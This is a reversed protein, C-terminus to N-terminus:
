NREKDVSQDFGTMFLKILKTLNNKLVSIKHTGNRDFNIIFYGSIVIAWYM